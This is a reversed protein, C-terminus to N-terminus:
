DGEGHLDDVHDLPDAVVPSILGLTKLQRFLRRANLSIIEGCERARPHDLRRLLQMAEAISMFPEMLTQEAHAWAPPEHIPPSAAPLPGTFEAALPEGTFPSAPELDPTSEAPHSPLTGSAMRGAKPAGGGPDVHPTDPQRPHQRELERLAVAVARYLPTDQMEKDGSVGYDAKNTGYFMPDTTAYNVFMLAIFKQFVNRDFTYKGEYNTNDEVSELVDDFVRSIFERAPKPNLIALSHHPLLEFRYTPDPSAGSTAADVVAVSEFVDLKMMQDLTKRINGKNVLHVISEKFEDLDTGLFHAQGSELKDRLEILRRKLSGRADDIIEMMESRLEQDDPFLDLTEFTTRIVAFDNLGDELCPYAIGLPLHNPFEAIVEGNQLAGDPPVLTYFRNNTNLSKLLVVIRRDAPSTM